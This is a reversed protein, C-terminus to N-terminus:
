LVKRAVVFNDLYLDRDLSPLRSMIIGIINMPCHFGGLLTRALMKVWRAEIRCWIMQDIRGQFLQILAALGTLSKEVAVINLGARNISAILGYSTFRYADWPQEHEPWLFPVTLVLQGGPRLVRAIERLFADPEPVHELVQSCLVCDFSADEFPFRTGDYYADALGRLRNREQDLDLGVQQLGAPLVARYPRAGCGVGLMCGSWSRAAAAIFRYLTGRAAHYPNVVISTWGPGFMATM